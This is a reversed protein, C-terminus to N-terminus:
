IRLAALHFGRFRIRTRLTACVNKARASRKEIAFACRGRVQYIVTASRPSAPEKALSDAHSLDSRARPAVERFNGFTGSLERKSFRV